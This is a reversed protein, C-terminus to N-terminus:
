KKDPDILEYVRGVIIPTMVAAVAEKIRAIEEAKLSVDKADWIKQALVFREAKQAPPINQQGVLAAAAARSLTLPQGCDPKDQPCDVIVAGDLGRIPTTFDLALAPSAFLLAAVFVTSRM